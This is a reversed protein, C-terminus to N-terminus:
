DDGGDDGLPKISLVADESLDNLSHVNDLLELSLSTLVSLGFHVAEDAVASLESRWVEEM